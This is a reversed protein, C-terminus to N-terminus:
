VLKSYYYDFIVVLNCNAELSNIKECLKNDFIYLKDEKGVLDKVTVVLYENGNKTQNKEKKLFLGDYQLKM